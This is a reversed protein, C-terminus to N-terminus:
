GRIDVFAGRRLDSMYRRALADLRERGLSERLQDATPLSAPDHRACVMVVGVGDHLPMPKSAESPKLALVQQREDTPLDSARIDPVQRSLQPAREQGLKAMDACSKAADSVEQAQAQAHQREEPTATPALPFVVEVLSLRIQDPSSDGLTQRDMVYLIYYGATTRVPYSMEGPNMKLLAEGLLPSLESPTVWGIDGGVAASPSQSFQQAVAAFKAGGRIQEILRDALRKADDAQSPNDIALFIEAVRSEPKGVETKLRDMAEKVQEDSVSVEQVLRNSVVKEWALSATIQDVLSARSIGAQELYKDLAGKPMNNRQEIQALAADIQDKTVAVNLRKAEQMQLREDILQRLVRPEIRKRNEPTDQMGSSRMVLVLRANVDDDSVVEDNVVAAIRTEQGIAAVACTSLLFLAVLWRM